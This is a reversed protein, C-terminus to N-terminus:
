LFHFGVVKGNSFTVRVLLDDGEDKLTLKWVHLKKGQQKLEALHIMQFGNKLREGYVSKAQDVIEQTAAKKFAEDGEKSFDEVSGKEIAELIGKLTKDVGTEKDAAVASFQAFAAVLFLAIFSRLRYMNTKM